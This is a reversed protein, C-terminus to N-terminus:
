RGSHHIDAQAGLGVTLQQRLEFGIADQDRRQRGRQRWSKGADRRHAGDGEIIPLGIQPLPQVLHCQGEGTHHAFGGLAFPQQGPQIPIEGAHLGSQRRIQRGQQHHLKDILAM